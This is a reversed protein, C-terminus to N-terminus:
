PRCYVRIWHRVIKSIPVDQKIAYIKLLKHETESLDVTIRKVKRTDMEGVAQSDVSEDKM